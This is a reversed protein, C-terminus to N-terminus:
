QFLNGKSVFLNGKSVFFSGKLVSLNGKSVFFSGKLLNGTVPLNVTV